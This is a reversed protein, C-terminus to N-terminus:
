EVPIKYLRLIALNMNHMAQMASRHDDCLVHVGHEDLVTVCEMLRRATVEGINSETISDDDNNSNKIEKEVIRKFTDNDIQKTVRRTLLSGIMKDTKDLMRYAESSQLKKKIFSCDTSVCRVDHSPNCELYTRRLLNDCFAQIFKPEITRLNNDRLFQLSVWFKNDTFELYREDTKNGSTWDRLQQKTPFSNDYERMWEVIQETMIESGVVHKNYVVQSFSFFKNILYQDAAAIGKPSICLIDKGEYRGIEMCRILQEVEFSGFSTGSFLADRMLYDIGDADIESHLIQVLLPNTDEREVRGIIMDAILEPATRGLENIILTKLEKNNLIIDSAINEHHLGVSKKMYQWSVEDNFDDIRNKIVTNVQKCDYDNSIPEITKRFPTECVHSLPYHGIDHLLGAIRVIKRDYDNLGLSIAIRDCIHMVGLSHSYRTHESGPFVWNVTSLQKINHLRKFLLSDIIKGETETFPIFGHVNDLVKDKLLLCTKKNTM